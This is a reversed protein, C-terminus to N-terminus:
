AIGGIVNSANDIPQRRVIRGLNRLRPSLEDFEGRGDDVLLLVALVLYLRDHVPQRVIIRQFTWSFGPSDGGDDASHRSLAHDRRLFTRRVLNLIDHLSQTPNMEICGEFFRAIDGCGIGQTGSRLSYFSPFFIERSFECSRFLNSPFPISSWSRRSTNQPRHNLNTVDHFQIYHKNESKTIGTKFKACRCSQFVCHIM